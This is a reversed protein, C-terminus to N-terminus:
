KKEGKNIDMFKNYEKKCEVCLDPSNLLPLPRLRIGHPKGSNRAKKCRDCVEILM